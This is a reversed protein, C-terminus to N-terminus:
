KCSPCTVRGRPDPGLRPQHLPVLDLQGVEVRSRLHPSLTTNEPHLGGLYVIRSVGNGYCGMAPVAAKGTLAARQEVGDVRSNVIADQDRVFRHSACGSAAVGVALLVAAVSATRMKSRNM